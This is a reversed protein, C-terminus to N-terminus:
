SLFVGVKWLTHFITQTVDHYGEGNYGGSETGRGDGKEAGLLLIIPTNNFILLSLQSFLCSIILHKQQSKKTSHM